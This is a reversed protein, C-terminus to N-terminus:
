NLVEWNIRISFSGERSCRLVIRRFGNSPGPAEVVAVGSESIQIRCPVGPLSGQVNGINAENGEIIIQEGKKVHGTWVITGSGSRKESSTGGAGKLSPRRPEVTIDITASAKGGPGTATAVLSVSKTLSVTLSGTAAVDGIVPEIRVSSAHRAEWEILTRQGAEIVEPKAQLRITPVQPAPSEVTIHATASARTGGPGTATASYTVSKGPRVKVRGTLPLVDLDPEIRVNFANQAEWELVAEQGAQIVAPKATLTLTPAAPPAPEVLVRVRATQTGEPGTAIASYEVSKSPRVKQTGNLQVPGVDPEIRVSQANRAEWQLVSEQGSTIVPPNAALVITPVLAAPKPTVSVILDVSQTAIGGPGRATVTYKVSKQPAVIRSGAPPVKGIGPEISVTDAHRVKWRLVTPHGPTIMAHSATIEIVPIPEPRVTMLVSKSETGGPGTATLLYSVSKTPSVTRSGIASVEGIDPELRVKDANQTTWELTAKQGSTIERPNVVFEITPPKVGGGGILPRLIGILYGIGPWLIAALLVVLLGAAIRRHEKIWELPNWVPGKGSSLCRDIHLAFDGCGSFRNEPRKQLAKLVIKEADRSISRNLQRPPPPPERVVAQKIDFESEGDFPVRRTLLEYLVIGMSYVDTLHDVKDPTRIQEPSMYLPTGKEDGTKTLRPGGFVRAIGFDTVKVQGEQNLMLNGPKLDRHVIGSQHAYDVARLADRCWRLAEEQSIPESKNLLDALSGGSLYEEVMFYRDGQEVYDYVAALHPHRLEHMIRAGQVFYKVLQEDLALQQRLRKVVAPTGHDKHEALYVMSMGGEGIQRVIIYDGIQEGQEM